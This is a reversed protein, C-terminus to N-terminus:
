PCKGLLEPRDARLEKSHRKYASIACDANLFSEVSELLMSLLLLPVNM